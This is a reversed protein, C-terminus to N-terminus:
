NNNIKKNKVAKIQKELKTIREHLEIIHNDQSCLRWYMRNDRPYHLQKTLETIDDIYKDWYKKM